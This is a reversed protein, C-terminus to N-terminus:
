SMCKILKDVKILRFKRAKILIQITLCYKMRTNLPTYICERKGEQERRELVCVCM